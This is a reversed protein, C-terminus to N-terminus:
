NYSIYKLSSEFTLEVNWLVFVLFYLWLFFLFDLHSKHHVKIPCLEWWHVFDGGRWCLGPSLQCDDWTWLLGLLRQVGGWTVSYAENQFLPSLWLEEASTNTWITSAIGWGTNWHVHENLPCPMSEPLDYNLLDSPSVYRLLTKHSSYVTPFETGTREETQEKCTNASM